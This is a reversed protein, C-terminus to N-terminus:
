HLVVLIIKRERRGVSLFLIWLYSNAVQPIHAFQDNTRGGWSLQLAETKSIIIPVSTKFHNVFFLALFDKRGYFTRKNFDLRFNDLFDIYKSQTTICNWLKRRSDSLSTRSIFRFVESSVLHSHHLTLFNGTTKRCVTGDVQLLRLSWSFILLSLTQYSHLPSLLYISKLESNWKLNDKLTQIM